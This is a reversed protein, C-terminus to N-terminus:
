SVSPSLLGPTASVVGYRVPDTKVTAFTFRRSLSATVQLVPQHTWQGMFPCCRTADHFRTLRWFVFVFQFNGHGLADGRVSWRGAIGVELGRTSANASIPQLCFSVVNGSSHQQAM